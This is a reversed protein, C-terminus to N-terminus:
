ETKADTSETALNEIKEIVIPNTPVDKGFPGAPGTPTKGIWDAIDEGEIVKGFVTYGWGAVDKSRHNLFDNDAINIFFQASASHPDQTRAMAITYRDNKLTNDAENKIPDRTEKKDFALTFGGGQIMFGEIVRHFITGEYYGDEVYKLFNGVTAPAKQADLEIIMEGLNTIMKVQVKEASLEDATAAAPLLLSLSGLSLGAFLSLFRRRPSTTSLFIKM